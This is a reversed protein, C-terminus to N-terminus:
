SVRTKGVGPALLGDLVHRQLLVAALETVATSEGRASAVSSLSTNFVGVASVPARETISVHSFDPM